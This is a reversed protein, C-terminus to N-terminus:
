EAIPPINLESVPVYIETIWKAPNRTDNANVPYFEMYPGTSDQAIQRESLYAYASQWAEELNKTDGKLTVKLARFPPMEGTLIDSEPDTIIKASTFVGNSFITANNEEDRSYYLTFPISVNSIRNKKIYDEIVQIRSAIKKRSDSIKSSTTTYLYFGGGQEAIGDVSISYKKMDTIVLSDLKELSRELQPGVRGSLSGKWLIYAKSIFNLPGETKWTVKTNNDEPKFIWSIHAPEHEGYLLEQDIHTHPTLATTELKGKIKDNNWRFNAGIGKTTEGFTIKTGTNGATWYIWDQWNKLDEVYNFVVPPNAHITRTRTISYSSPQIAVYISLGIVLILLLFFLYKLIKM